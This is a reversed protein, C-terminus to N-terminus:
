EGVEERVVNEGKKAGVNVEKMVVNQGKDCSREGGYLGNGSNGKGCEDGKTRWKRKRGKGVAKEGRKRRGRGGERGLERVCM